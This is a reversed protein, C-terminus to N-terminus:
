FNLNEPIFISTTDDETIKHYVGLTLHLYFRPQRKLGLEERIDLLRDCKIPFWVHKGDTQYIPNYEFEIDIEHYQDWRKWYLPEEGRVVSIHPGWRTDGIKIGNFRNLLNFGRRYYRGLEPCAHLVLWWDQHLRLQGTSKYMLVTGKILVPLEKLGM